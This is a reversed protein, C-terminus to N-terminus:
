WVDGDRWDCTLPQAPDLAASVRLVMLSGETDTTTSVIGDPSMAETPGDWAEWDFARYLPAGDDSAGLAGLEYGGRVVENVAAMIVRGLGRRRRDARVGIAEVYGCRLARGCHVIRRQVVSGHGVLEGTERVLVHMGGLAHEWSTADFDGEFVDVLMAHVQELVDPEVRSTHLIEVVVTEGAADTV